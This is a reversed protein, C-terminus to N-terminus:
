GWGLGGREAAVAVAGYFPRYEAEPHCGGWVRAWGVLRDRVTRAAEDDEEFVDLVEGVVELDCTFNLWCERLDEGIPPPTIEFKYLEGALWARDM